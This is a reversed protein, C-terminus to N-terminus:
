PELLNVIDKLRADIIKPIEESKMKKAAPELFPRGRKEWLVRFYFSREDEEPMRKDEVSRQGKSLLRGHSTFSFRIVAKYEEIRSKVDRAITEEFLATKKKKRLNGAFGLGPYQTSQKLAWVLKGTRSTLRGPTSPQLKRAKYPNISDTTNAIIEDEAAKLRIEDMLEGIANQMPYRYKKNTSKLVKIAKKANLNVNVLPNGAM